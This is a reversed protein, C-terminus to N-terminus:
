RSASLRSPCSLCASIVRVAGESAGVKPRMRWPKTQSRADWTVKFDMTTATERLPLYMAEDKFVPKNMAINHKGEFSWKIDPTSSILVPTGETSILVPIPAEDSILVPVPVEENYLAPMPIPKENSNAFVTGLNSLCLASLIMFAITKKM